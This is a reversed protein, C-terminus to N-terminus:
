QPDRIDGSVIGYTPDPAGDSDVGVALPYLVAAQQCAGIGRRFRFGGVIQVNRNETNPPRVVFGADTDQRLQRCMVHETQIRSGITQSINDEDTIECANVTDYEILGCMESPM